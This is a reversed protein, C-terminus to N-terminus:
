WWSFVVGGAMLAPRDDFRLAVAALLVGVLVFPSLVEAIVRSLSDLLRIM